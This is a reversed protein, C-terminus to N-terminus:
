YTSPPDSAPFSEDSAQDVRTWRRREPDAMSAPGADRVVPCQRATPRARGRRVTLIAVGAGLAAVAAGLVAGRVMADPRLAPRPPIDRVAEAHAVGSTDIVDIGAVRRPYGKGEPEGSREGRMGGPAPAQKAQPDTTSELLTAGLGTDKVSNM